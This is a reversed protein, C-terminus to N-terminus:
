GSPFAQVDPGEEHRFRMRVVRFNLPELARWSIAFTAMLYVAGALLALPWRGLRGPEHRFARSPPHERPSRM